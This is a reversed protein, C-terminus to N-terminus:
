TTTTSKKTYNEAWADIAHLWPFMGQYLMATDRSEALVEAYRLLVEANAINLGHLKATEKELRFEEKQKEPEGTQSARVADLVKESQTRLFSSFGYIADPASDFSESAHLSEFLAIQNKFTMAADIYPSVEPGKETTAIRELAGEM